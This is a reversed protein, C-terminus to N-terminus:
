IARKAGRQRRGENERAREAKTRRGLLARPLGRSSCNQPSLENFVEYVFEVDLSCIGVGDAVGHWALAAAAAVVFVGVVARPGRRRQGGREEETRAEAAAESESRPAMSRSARLSGEAVEEEEEEEAAGATLFAALAAEM